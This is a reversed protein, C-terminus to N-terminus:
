RTRRLRVFASDGDLLRRLIRAGTDGYREAMIKEDWNTTVIMPSEHRWRYDVIFDLRELFKAGTQETGLDDLMVIRSEQMMRNADLGFGLNFTRRDFDSVADGWEAASVYFGARYPFFGHEKVYHRRVARLVSLGLHTKGAGMEGYIVLGCCKGARLSEIIELVREGIARGANVRSLDFTEMSMSALRNGWDREALAVESRLCCGVCMEGWDERLDMLLTEAPYRCLRCSERERM